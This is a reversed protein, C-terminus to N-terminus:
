REQFGMGHTRVKFAVNAADDPTGWMNEVNITVNGGSTPAGSVMEKSERNSYVKSGSGGDILEPGNEGAISLGKAVGGLRYGKPAQSPNAQQVNGIGGYASEIYKIAAAINAVPDTLSNSTGAVHYTDFTPQIVQMLGKSPTGALANSDTNNVANPNGGSERSIITSIGAAWATGSVGAAAMGAQIWASVQASTAPTGAAAAAAAEAKKQANYAAAYSSAISKQTKAMETQLALKEDATTAGNFSQGVPGGGAFGNIKQLLGFNNRTAKANIVYEGDSLMAPISDSTGNGPGQVHGGTAYTFGTTSTFSHGTIQGEPVGNFSISVPITKPQIGGLSANVSAKFDDISKAASKLKGGLGPVWGFAKAAGDVIKQAMDLFTNVINRVVTQITTYINNWTTTFLNKVNNGWNTLNNKINDFTSTFFNEITHLINFFGNYADNWVRVFFSAADQVAPEFHSILYNLFTGFAGVAESLWRIVTGLATVLGQLAPIIAYILADKVIFIAGKLDSQLFKVFPQMNTWAKQVSSWFSELAPVIHTQIASWIAELAPKVNNVISQWFQQLAPIMKNIVWDHFPQVKQFAIYFGAALLAIVGVVTAAVLGISALAAALTTYIAAGKAAAIMTVIAAAIANIYVPDLGGISTVLKTLGALTLSGLPTIATIFKTIASAIKGLDDWVKPGETNVFKVFKQFGQNKDLNQSWQLFKDSLGKIGGSMRESTPIFAVFINLIGRLLNGLAGGLVPLIQTFQNNLAKLVDAGEHGPKLWNTIGKFMQTFGNAATNLPVNLNNLLGPLDKTLEVIPQMTITKQSQGWALFAKKLDDFAILSGDKNKGIAQLGLAFAGLGLGVSAAISGLAGIAGVSAGLAPALSTGAVIATSILLSRMDLNAKSSGSSLNGMSSAARDTDRSLDRMGQSTEDSSSGAGRLSNAASDGSTAARRLATDLAALSRLASSTDSTVKISLRAVDSMSEGVERFFFGPGM